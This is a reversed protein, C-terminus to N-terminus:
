SPWIVQAQGRETSSPSTNTVYTSCGSPNPGQAPLAHSIRINLDPQYGFSLSYGGGTVYDGPNCAGEVGKASNPPVSFAQLVGYTSSTTAAYAYPIGYLVLPLTLGVALIAARREM